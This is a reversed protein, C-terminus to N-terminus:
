VKISTGSCRGPAACRPSPSMRTNSTRRACTRTTSATGPEAWSNIAQCAWSRRQCVYTLRCCCGTTSCSVSGAPTPRIPPTSSRSPRWRKAMACIPWVPVSCRIPFRRGWSPISSLRWTRFNRRAGRQAFANKDGDLTDMKGAYVEFSDGIMRSILVNTLYLQDSNFVPLDSLLTPSIFCNVNNVISQGYRHEARIKLYTGDALGLKEGDFNLVYDGHGSGLFQQDSGGTANGFFFSTNDANFTVGSDALVSRMGLWDGTLPPSSDYWTVDSGPPVEQAISVRTSVLGILLPRRGVDGAVVVAPCALRNRRSAARQGGVELSSQGARRQPLMERCRMSRSNRNAANAFKLSRNGADHSRCAQASRASESINGRCIGRGSSTETIRDRRGAKGAEGPGAVTSERSIM